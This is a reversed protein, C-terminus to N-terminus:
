EYKNIRWSNFKIINKLMIIILCEWYSQIQNLRVKYILDPYDVKFRSITRYLSNEDSLYSPSIDTFTKKEIMM